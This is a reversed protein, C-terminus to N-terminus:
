GVIEILESFIFVPPRTGKGEKIIKITNQESLKELIRNASRKPIASRKVFETLFLSRGRRSSSVTSGPNSARAIYSPAHYMFNKYDEAYYRSFIGRKYPFSVENCSLNPSPSSGGGELERGSPSPSNHPIKHNVITKM